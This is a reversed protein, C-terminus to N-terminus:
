IILIPPEESGRSGGQSRGQEEGLEREEEVLCTVM